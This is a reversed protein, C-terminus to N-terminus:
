KKEQSTEKQEEPFKFMNMDVEPNLEIKEIKIEQGTQGNFKNITSFPFYLGDVEQFDSFVEQTKAGKAQGSKIEQEVMVPIFNETDFYYYSENSVEKGDALVPLETLKIKYTETGEVEEKGILEIKHGKEKYNLFPNPFSNKATRILNKIDESDKKEAKGSMFNTGWATTGDFALQVMKKGQLEFKVLQKGDKFMYIDVPIDMGQAQAKALMHIGELKALKEKGGINELYNNVIEDATQANSNFSFLISVFLLVFIKKM